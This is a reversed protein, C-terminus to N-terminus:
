KDGSFWKEVLETKQVPTASEGKAYLSSIRFHSDSQARIVLRTQYSGHHKSTRKRYEGPLASLGPYYHKSATAYSLVTTSVKEGTNREAQFDFLTWHHYSLSVDVSRLDETALNFVRCVRGKCDVWITVGEDFVLLGKWM